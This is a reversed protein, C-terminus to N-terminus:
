LTHERLKHGCHLESDKGRFDSHWWNPWSADLVAAISRGGETNQNEENSDKCKGEGQDFGM